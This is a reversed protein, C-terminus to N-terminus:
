TKSRKVRPRKAGKKGAARAEESTFKHARGSRHAAFGGKSGAAKAEASTFEHALGLKHAVRGGMSAIARHQEPDMSAFGQKGKPKKRGM